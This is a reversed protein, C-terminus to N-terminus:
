KGWGGGVVVSSLYSDRLAKRLGPVADDVRAALAKLTQTHERREKGTFVTTVEVEATLVAMTVEEMPSTSAHRAGRLVADRVADRLARVPRPDDVTVRDVPVLGLRKERRVTIAHTAALQDRVPEEATHAKNHVLSLWGKPKDASVDHWVDALFPESPPEVAPRVVKGGEAILKGGFTLEAFAAARLLQGRGQLNLLEFKKKDVSYCLLYLRQAMTQHM